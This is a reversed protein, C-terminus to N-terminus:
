AAGGARRAAATRRAIWALAILAAAAALTV